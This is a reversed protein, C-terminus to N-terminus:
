LEIINGEEYRNREITKFCRNINGDENIPLVDYEYKKMIEIYNEDSGVVFEKWATNSIGVMAATIKDHGDEM